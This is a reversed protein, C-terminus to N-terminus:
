RIRLAVLIDVKNTNGKSSDTNNSGAEQPIDVFVHIVMNGNNHPLCTLQLFADIHFNQAVKQTRRGKRFELRKSLISGSSTKKKCHSM